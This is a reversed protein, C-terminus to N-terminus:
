IKGISWQTREFYEGLLGDLWTEFNKGFKFFLLSFELAENLPLVTFELLFAKQGM